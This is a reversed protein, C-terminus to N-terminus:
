ITAIVAAVRRNGREGAWLPALEDLQIEGFAPRDAPCAVPETGQRPQVREHQVRADDRSRETWSCRVPDPREPHLLDDPDVMERM